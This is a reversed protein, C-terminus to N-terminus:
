RTCSSSTATCRTARRRPPAWSATAAATTAARPVRQGAPRARPAPAPTSRRARRGPPRRAGLALLREADPRGPRLLHGHLEQHGGPRRVLVAAALHQGARRGPRGEAAPRRHRRRQHRTFSPVPPLLDYPDPSVPRDLSMTSRFAPFPDSGVTTRHNFAAVAPARRRRVIPRHAVVVRRVGGSEPEGAAPDDDDATAVDGLPPHRPQDRRARAHRPRARPSAPSRPDRRPRRSRGPRPAAELVGVEVAGPVDDGRGVVVVDVLATLRPPPPAASRRRARRRRSGRGGRPGRRDPRCAPTVTATSPCGRARACDAATRSSIRSRSRSPVSRRGRCGRACARRPAPRRRVPRGRASRTAPAGARQHLGVDDHGVPEGRALQEALRGLSTSSTSTALSGRPRDACCSSILRTM